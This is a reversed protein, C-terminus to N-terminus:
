VGAPVAEASQELLRILDDIRTIATGEQQTAETRQKFLEDALNVSVLVAARSPSLTPSAAMLTRFKGDVYAAVQQLHQPSDNSRLTLCQGFIEVETKQPESAM